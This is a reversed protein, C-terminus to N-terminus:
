LLLRLEDMTRKHPPKTLMWIISQVEKSYEYIKQSFLKVKRNQESELRRLM